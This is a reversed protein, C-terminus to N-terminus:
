RRRLLAAGGLLLLALSAPEPVIDVKMAGWYYFGYSNNNNPGPQAEVMIEGAPTPSIGAIIAVESVNGVSNLLATGSNLGMADYQAERNDSTGLRSAFLTFDYTLAPNLGTLTVGITPQTQDYWPETCGYLSDRTTQADFMAADGTPSQTGNNNASTTYFADHVTLGIGTSAGTDDICDAIPNQHWDLNNCNGGTPYPEDGFDFYVAAQAPLGVGFVCALVLVSMGARYM